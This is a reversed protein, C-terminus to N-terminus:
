WHDDEDIDVVQGSWPTGQWMMIVRSAIAIKGEYSLEALDVVNTTSDNDWRVLVDINTRKSSCIFLCSYTINLINLYLYNSILHVFNIEIIIKIYIGQICWESM